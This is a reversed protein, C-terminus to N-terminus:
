NYGKGTDHKDTHRLCFKLKRVFCTVFSLLDAFVHCNNM